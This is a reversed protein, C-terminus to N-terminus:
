LEAHSHPQPHTHATRHVFLPSLLAPPTPPSEYQQLPLLYVEVTTALDAVYSVETDIMEKYTAYRHRAYSDAPERRAPLHFRGQEDFGVLTVVEEPQPEEEEEEEVEEEAEEDAVEEEDDEEADVVQVDDMSVAGAGGGAGSGAEVAGGRRSSGSGTATRAWTYSQNLGMPLTASPSDLLEQLRQQVGAGAGQHVLRPISPPRRPEEGTAATNGAHTAPRADHTAQLPGPVPGRTPTPPRQTAAAAAAATTAGDSGGVGEQQGTEEEGAAGGSGGGGASAASAASNSRNVSVQQATAAAAATTSSRAPATSPRFGASTTPRATLLPRVSKRRRVAPVLPSLATALSSTQPPTVATGTRAADIRHETLDRSMADDFWLQYTVAPQRCLLLLPFAGGQDTYPNKVTFNAFDIWKAHHVPSSGIKAPAEKVLLLTDTFVCVHYQRRPADSKDKSGAVTTEFVLRRGAKGVRSKSLHYRRALEQM